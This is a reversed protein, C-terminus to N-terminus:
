ILGGSEGGSGVLDGGAEGDSVVMCGRGMMNGMLDVIMDGIM